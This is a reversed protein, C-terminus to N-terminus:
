PDAHAQQPDGQARPGAPSGARRGIPLFPGSLSQPLVPLGAPALPSQRRGRVPGGALAVAGRARERRRTM